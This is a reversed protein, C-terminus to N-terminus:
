EGNVSYSYVKVGGYVSLKVEPPKISDAVYVPIVIPGTREYLLEGLAIVYNARAIVVAVPNIDIDMVSSLIFNLV